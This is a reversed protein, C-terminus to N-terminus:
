QSIDPLEVQLLPFVFDRMKFYSLVRQVPVLLSKGFLCKSIGGCYIRFLFFQIFLLIIVHVYRILLFIGYRSVNPILLHFIKKVDPSLYCLIQAFPVSVSCGCSQKVLDVKYVTASCGEDGCSDNSLSNTDRCKECGAVCCKQEAECGPCCYHMISVGVGAFVILLSLSVALIYRFSRM